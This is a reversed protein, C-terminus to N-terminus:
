QIGGRSAATAGAKGELLALRSELLAALQRQEQIEDLLIPAM